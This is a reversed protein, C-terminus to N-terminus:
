GVMGDVTETFLIEFKITELLGVAEAVTLDEVHSDLIAEMIKERIPGLRMESASFLNTVNTM